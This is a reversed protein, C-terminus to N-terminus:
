QEGDPEEQDLGGSEVPEDRLPPTEVLDGEEEAELAGSEVPQDNREM